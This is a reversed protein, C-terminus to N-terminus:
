NRRMMPALTAEEVRNALIEELYRKHVEPREGEFRVTVGDPRLITAAWLDETKMSCGPKRRRTNM